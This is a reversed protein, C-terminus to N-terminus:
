VVQLKELQVEDDVKLQDYHHASRYGQLHNWLALKDVNECHYLKCVFYVVTELVLKVLFFVLFLLVWCIGLIGRDVWASRVVLYHLFVFQIVGLPLDLLMWLKIVMKMNGKLLAKSKAMAKFGYSEELVSVVSSLQWITTLYWIGICYSIILFFLITGIGLLFNHDNNPGYIIIAIVPILFFVAFAIFNFAFITAFYCLFTVLLRKWVKPLVAIVHAFSVDRAAYICAVTYIVASISLLSFVSSIILFTFNSFSSYIIESSVLHSLKLFQPTSKKTHQLITEEQSIKQLSFNSIEMNTFILLSLPLIFVLTIQTFIKRWQHILKFTEHLIGYIGLFNLSELKVEDM